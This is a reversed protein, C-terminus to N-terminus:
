CHFRFIFFKSFFTYRCKRAYVIKEMRGELKMLVYFNPPATIVAPEATNVKFKTCDSETQIHM